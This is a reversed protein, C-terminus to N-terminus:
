GGHGAATATVLLGGPNTGRAQDNAESARTEVGVVFYRYQAVVSSLSMAGAAVFAGGWRVANVLSNPPVDMSDQILGWYNGYPVHAAIAGFAGHAGAWDTAASTNNNIGAFHTEGDAPFMHPDTANAKAEPSMDQVLKDNSSDEAMGADAMSKAALAVAALAASTVAGTIGAHLAQSLSAGNISAITFGTAFGVAASTGVYAAAAGFSTTAAATVGLSAVPAGVATLVEGMLVPAYIAVVAIVVVTLIARVDGHLVAKALSVIGHWLSSFFHGISHFLSKLGWMGNVDTHNVPDNGAYAYRNLGVMATSPMTPDPSIFRGIVPDYYRAHLYFLGTEDQRQATYGRSEAEAGTQSLSGGFPAYSQRSAVAGTSDTEAQISGAQDTHLWYTTSGVRRAVLEGALSVYKTTVGFTVEYDDALYYTTTSGNVKKIRSGDADYAFGIANISSPRNDGDWTISRGPGSVMNGDADYAYSGAGATLVAHPHAQGPAAYAYSGVQSSSTVNGYADYTWSQSYSANSTNTASALRHQDYGYSWGENAFPSAVTTIKGEADRAYALSQVTTAGSVTTIGTLWFRSSSYSRTTTVGNADVQQTVDGLADYSVGNVIGPIVALRGAGDYTLPASPTGVSDGDPYSTWLLRGGADYGKQFTYEVGDTTRTGTVLRGLADYAYAAGGSPDSEATLRGVNSHGTSPQDFSWSVTTASATGALSTKSTRRNLADYGFTTTQGKADTQSVLRGAADYAYSSAGADPDVSALKRNLSDFSFGWVNGLGDTVTAPNGRQDYAYTRTTVAGGIWEYHWKPRAYADATDREQHGLEDTALVSGYGQDFGYSKTIASNDPAIQAVVRDLADYSTTLWAPTDGSYYPATQQVTKGRAGHVTDQVINQTSTPGKKMSRWPRGLGDVYTREWQNGSGDAAPTDVEVYGNNPDGVAVYSRAEFGGLPYSTQTLRCLADYAMTVLQGNPDTQGTKRVCVPDWSTTQAQGLANTLGTRYQHYTPDLTYYTTAGVENTESAVTGWADYTASTVVYSNTTSAWKLGQTPKGVRPPTSWSTAGDYYILGQSLLAGSTGIGAYASQGASLGVIFAGANPAVLYSTTMEDGAVDYNGFATEQVLNGYGAKWTSTSADYVDWSRSMYTRAGHACAAGSGSTTAWSCGIGSGDYTYQWAGTELTVYPVTSGNTVYTHVTDTLLAGSGASRRAEQPKSQSGYDQAYWTEEYPCASEGALCPLTTKVYHYGLFRRDIADYLGGSYSYSTTATNGRGDNTTISTITQALPPNNTNSWASSPAYALTTTGGLGNSLSTVLDPAPGSSLMVGWTTGWGPRTYALDSKGDGDYDGPYIFNWSDECWPGSLTGCSGGGGGWTQVNFGSGTSLMVVWTTGWGPRTYAIDTKGDGNFDGPFVLNWSDECFPGSLAGCSGGGGSWVQATFGSGTSLMVIWTTGWGPRTYAIDGKGDGNFDGRYVLNWADECWPGSLSGCSGGGGAWATDTLGGAAGSTSVTMAPLSTGGTVTGTADLTADRGFQQVSALLSRATSGSTSYTLKYARARSGSVVVDITKVRYSTAGLASGNAFTVPDPRAERYLTVVTGNYSVTNPYCDAGPDCWWGYSVTNGSTDSVSSQGWRFTGQGVAYVAAYTTKAGDKQTVTWTNSPADFAIRVFTEIKTSHTGGSTCSPSASGSACPFLEQGDLLFVDAASYTPAGGGPSAREITSFGSLSWGVGLAGSGGASSYNIALRPEIAHFPPVEIPVSAGAAGHFQDASSSLPPTNTDAAAQVTFLSIALCLLALAFRKM